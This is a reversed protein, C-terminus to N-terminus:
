AIHPRNILAIKPHRVIGSGAYPSLKLSGPAVGSCSMFAVPFPADFANFLLRCGSRVKIVGSIRESVVLDM